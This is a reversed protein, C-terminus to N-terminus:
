QEYRLSKFRDQRGRVGFAKLKQDRTRGAADRIVELAKQAKARNAFVEGPNRILDAILEREAEQVTGPGLIAERSESRLLQVLTGIENNAGFDFRGARGAKSLITNINSITNDAMSTAEVAKDRLKPDPAFGYGPVYRAGQKEDMNRYPDDSGMMSNLFAAQAQEQLLQLKGLQETVKGQTAQDQYRAGIEALKLEAAKLMNMKSAERAAGENKFRELMRGYLSDKNQLGEKKINYAARQDNVDREIAREIAEVARNQGGSAAGGFGGLILGISALIKDGTGMNHFLRKSDIKTSELDARMAELEQLAKGSQKQQAIDRISGDKAYSEIEDMARQYSLAQERSAEQLAKGQEIIGQRMQGYAGAGPYSFTGDKMLADAREREQDFALYPDENVPPPATNVPPVFAEQDRRASERRMEQARQGNFPDLDGLSMGPRAGYMMGAYQMAGPADTPIFDPAMEPGIPAQFQQTPVAPEPPPPMEAGAAPFMKGFQDQNILGRELALQAKSKDLLAM